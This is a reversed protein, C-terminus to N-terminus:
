GSPAEEPPRSLRGATGPRLLLTADYITIPGNTYIRSFGPISEFKKLGAISIAHRREFAKPEDSEVYFGILPPELTLRKDIVIYALSQGHVAKRLAEDFNDNFLIRPLSVDAYRGFIPDSEGYSGLLTANTRDTLLRSNRPLNAAAFRAAAVGEPTVSRAEAGVLYPGPQRTAQLEGILFGGIFSLTVAATLGASLAVGPPRRRSRVVLMAALFALGLFVFESARQSTESSAATLRLSLTVPYCAAVLALVWWLPDVIRDRWIRWFGVPLLALVPVISAVAILRAALHEQESSGSFLQKSDSSGTILDMLSNISRSFVGGLEQNTVSGAALIFWVGVALGMALAPLAPTKFRGGVSKGGWRSVLSGAGLWTLLFLFMAMSTMHHTVALSAALLAVLGAIGLAQPSLDIWELRSWRLSALLVAAGMALALSEYGFQADFYLFSPNCAYIVIGIGAARSSGTVRELFLFLAPMLIVRAAGIVITGAHFISLGGLESIAGTATSLTPFGATAPNLPNAGFPHGAALIENTARWWGFEDFRDFELPNSLVKVLFLFLGLAVSLGIREARSPAAALLRFAIPAFILILGAWFLPQLGGESEAAANNGLAVLVLGLAALAAISPLEGLDIWEVPARRRPTARQRDESSTPRPPRRPANIPRPEPGKV